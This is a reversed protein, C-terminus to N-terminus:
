PCNPNRRIVKRLASNTPQPVSIVHNRNKSPDLFSEKKPCLLWEGDVVFRFDISTLRPPPPPPPPHALSEAVRDSWTDCAVVM